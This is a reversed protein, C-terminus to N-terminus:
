YSFFSLDKGDVDDRVVSSGPSDSHGCSVFEGIVDEFASVIEVQRTRLQPCAADTRFQHDVCPEVVYGSSHADQAVAFGDPLLLNSRAFQIHAVAEGIELMMMEFKSGVALGANHMDMEQTRVTQGEAFANAKLRSIDSLNLKRFKAAWQSVGHEGLFRQCHRQTHLNHLSRLVLLIFGDM